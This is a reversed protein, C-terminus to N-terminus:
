SGGSNSMGTKGWGGRLIIKSGHWAVKKRYEKGPYYYSRGIETSYYYGFPNFSYNWLQSCPECCAAYNSLSDAPDYGPAATLTSDLVPNSIPQLPIMVRNCSALAATILVLQIKKTKKM